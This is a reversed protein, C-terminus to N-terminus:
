TGHGLQGYNNYGCTFLKGESSILALSECGNASSIQTIRINKLSEVKKPLSIRFNYFRTFKRDIIEMAWNVVAM